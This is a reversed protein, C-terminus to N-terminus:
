AAEQLVPAHDPMYVRAFEYFEAALQECDQQMGPYRCQELLQPEAITYVNPKVEDIEFVNWRFLRAGFIELYFRWQYGTLYREADMRSTTKHDDIRLGDLVDVCGTVTLDGYRKFGRVERIKPLYLTGEPMQFSYGMAYLTEHDGDPATELAKHFATGALMQKSPPASLRTLFDEVSQDENERWQRFSELTSVRVLM